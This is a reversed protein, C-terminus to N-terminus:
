GLQQFNVTDTEIVQSPAPVGSEQLAQGLQSAMFATQSDKSDWVEMVVWGTPTPGGTHVILGPPYTGNGDRDVGIKDNVSWYHDENVDEFVLVLGYAM